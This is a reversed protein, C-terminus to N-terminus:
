GGAGGLGLLFAAAILVAISMVLLKLPRGTTGEWERTLLGCIVTTILLVANWLSWGLTPGLRGMSRAGWGYLVVSGTWVAAMVFGNLWDIASAEKWLLHWSKRRQLLFLCYGANLIGGAPLAVLWIANLANDGTAGFSRASDAIPTGFAYSLNFAASLTGAAICIALGASFALKPNLMGAGAKDGIQRDRLEGAIGSITVGLITVINGLLLLLGKQTWIMDPTLILLPVLAGLATYLGTMMSLGLAMGLADVGLGFFVSGAGWCAGFAATMGIVRLSTAQYVKWLHPITLLAFLLPLIVYAFSSYILWLQEWKWRRVFKMPLVFSGQGIGAVLIWLLGVIYNRGTM